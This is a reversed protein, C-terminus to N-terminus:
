FNTNLRFLTISCKAKKKPFRKFHHLPAKNQTVLFIKLPRHQHHPYTLISEDHPLIETEDSTIVKDILIPTLNQNQSPHRTRSVEKKLSISTIRQNTNHNLHAQRIAPILPESLSPHREEFTYINEVFSFRTTSQPQSTQSSIPTTPPDQYTTTPPPENM